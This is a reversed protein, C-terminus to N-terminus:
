QGAPQRPAQNKRIFNRLYVVMGATVVTSVGAMILASVEGSQTWAYLSWACFLVSGGIATRILIKHMTTLKMPSMQGDNGPLHRSPETHTGMRFGRGDREHRLRPVSAREEAQAMARAM